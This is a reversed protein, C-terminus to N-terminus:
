RAANSLKMKESTQETPKSYDNQPPTDFLSDDGIKAATFVSALGFAAHSVIYSLNSAADTPKVKNSSLGSLMATIMSGFTVGFFLGKPILKDRGYKTLMLVSSVGSVMCLGTKMIMGLLQGTWKEAERRSSVWVGAATTRYARQSIKMKSSLVDTLTLAVLGVAGSILGLYIRDNIKKM